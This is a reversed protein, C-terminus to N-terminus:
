ETLLVTFSTDAAANRRHRGTAYFLVTVLLMGGFFWASLLTYYYVITGLAVLSLVLAIAPFYPYLPAKFPRQLQPERRRLVFLSIMSIVYMVVAGLTSVIVLKSTDAYLMALLGIFGGALLAWHPTQFRKNVRSLVVPLYSSRALAFVQRSYSIIISHFSAILGFLGIGAFLQTVSSQRGLVIGISEPLPYDINSLREWNTIGGTLIMVAFALLMLTVIGSIYGKPIDKKIDRVEEAVMAVGEICVYLWIAFPVAAFLGGWHQPMAHHMFNAASFSPAVIGCYILLEGVALLTVLLSFRASEKIGLLNIFTFLVYCGVAVAKVGMSPYLFHVYSGLAFAIAPAAFLFEILTAYGALLAGTAGLARYAYAFPGGAHPICTTLETFSFIFTVYLVTVVLTVLLFGMTGAAGWGYNWGFYEGSIVLGVAIAWIHLPKLVKKLATSQTPM